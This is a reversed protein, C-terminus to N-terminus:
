WWMIAQLVHGAQHNSSTTRPGSRMTVAMRSVTIHSHGSPGPAQVGLAISIGRGSASQRQSAASIPLPPRIVIWVPFFPGNRGSM